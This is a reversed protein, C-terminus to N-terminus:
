DDGSLAKNIYDAVKGEKPMQPLCNDKMSCSDCGKSYKVRPTYLRQFYGRMEGIMKKVTERLEHTLPVDERRKTEGYFLYADQIEPCLLM